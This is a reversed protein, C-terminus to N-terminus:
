RPRPVPREPVHPPRMQEMPHPTVEGEEVLFAFFSHLSRYRQNRTVPLKGQEELAIFFEHLDARTLDAARAPADM